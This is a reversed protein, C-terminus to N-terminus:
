VMKAESGPSIPYNNATRRLAPPASPSRSAWRSPLRRNAPRAPRSFGKAFSSKVALSEEIIKKRDVGQKVQQLEWMSTKQQFDEETPLMESHQSLVVGSNVSSNYKTRQDRFCTSNQLVSETSTEYTKLLKEVVGYNSKPDASRPRGSLNSPRWDHEHLMNRYSSPGTPGPMQRVLGATPKKSSNDPLNGTPVPMHISTKVSSSISDTKPINGTHTTLTDGPKLDEHSESRNQSQQIAYCNRDTRFVTRNFEDTKAALKENRTTREFGCSFSRLPGSSQTMSSSGDNRVHPDAHPKVPHAPIMNEYKSKNTASCTKPLWPISPSKKAGKGTDCSWVHLGVDDKYPPKGDMKVEPELSSFKGDKLDKGEDPCLTPMKHQGLLFHPDEHAVWTNHGFFDKFNEYTKESSSIPFNRSTSRPPPVPPAENRQLDTGSRNMPNSQLLKIFSLNRRNKEKEKLINVPLIYKGNNAMHDGSPMNVVTPMEQLFSDSKMRRHNSQKRIEEQFSCLEESVKALEELALSLAGCCSRSEKESAGVDPGAECEKQNDTAVPDVFGVNSIKATRQQKCSQNETTLSSQETDHEKELGHRHNTESLEIKGLNPYNSAPDVMKDSLTKEHDFDTIKAREIMNIKRRLKVEQCLEEIKKQMIKWQSEWEKRENDFQDLLEMKEKHWNTETNEWQKHLDM